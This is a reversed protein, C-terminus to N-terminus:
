DQPNCRLTARSTASSYGRSMRMTASEGPEISVPMSDDMLTETAGPELECTVTVDSNNTLRLVQPGAGTGPGPGAAGAVGTTEVDIDLGGLEKDLEMDSAASALWPLCGALALTMLIKRKM